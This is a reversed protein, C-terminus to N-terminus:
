PDDIGFIGYGVMELIYYPDVVDRDDCINSSFDSDQQKFVLQSVEGGGGVVEEAVLAYELDM